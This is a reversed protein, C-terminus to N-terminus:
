YYRIPKPELGGFLWNGPAFLDDSLMFERVAALLDEVGIVGDADRDLALLAIEAKDRSVGAATQMALFEERSVRGDGDRDYLALVAYPMQAIVEDFGTSTKMLRDLGEIFEQRTMRGEPDIGVEGALSNWFHLYADYLSQDHTKDAAQTLRTAIAEFDARTLYGDDDIDFLDFTQGHKEAAVASVM